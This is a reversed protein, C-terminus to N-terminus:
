FTFSKIRKGQETIRFTCESSQFPRETDRFPPETDRFPSKQLSFFVNIYYLLLIKGTYAVTEKPQNQEKKHWKSLRKDQNIIFQWFM